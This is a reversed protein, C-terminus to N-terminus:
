KASEIVLFAAHHDNDHLPQVNVIQGPKCLLAATELFQGERGDRGRLERGPDHADGFRDMEVLRDEGYRGDDDPVEEEHQRQRDDVRHARRPEVASHRRVFPLLKVGPFEGAVKLTAAPIKDGVKIAM